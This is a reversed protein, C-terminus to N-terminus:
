EAGAARQHHHDVDVQEQQARQADPSPPKHGATQSMVVAAADRRHENGDHRDEDDAFQRVRRQARGRGDVLQVMQAAAATPVPDVAVSPPRCRRGIEQDSGVAHRVGQKGEVRGDVENDVAQDASLEALDEHTARSEHEATPRAPAAAAAAPAALVVAATAAAVRDYRAGADAFPTPEHHM